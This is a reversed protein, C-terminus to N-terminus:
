TGSSFHMNWLADLERSLAELDPFITAESIGSFELDSKISSVAAAPITIRELLYPDRQQLHHLRSLHTGFVTFHGRQSSLRRFGHPPDIALPYERLLEEGAFLEPLYEKAAQWDPLAVGDSDDVCYFSLRNLRYPDLMWICAGVKGPDEQTGRVAFYLATLAGDSWDLIRTPAGYHRM